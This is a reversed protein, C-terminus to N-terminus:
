KLETNNSPRNLACPSAAHAAPGFRTNNGIFKPIEVTNDGLECIKPM